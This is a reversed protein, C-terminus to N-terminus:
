GLNLPGGSAEVLLEEYLDVSRDPSFATLTRERLQTGRHKAELPHTLWWTLRAELAQADGAPFVLDGNPEGIIQPMIGASSPITLTGCAMGEILALGFPEEWQSPVAIVDAVSQYYEPRDTTGPWLVQDSTLGLRRMLEEVRQRYEAEVSGVLVLKANPVSKLTQSYAQVLTEIGKEVTIRGVYVVLPSQEDLHLTRRRAVRQDCPAFRTTDVWNPAVHLDREPWGLHRWADATPESPAVGAAMWKMARRVSWPCNTLPLGLHYVTQIGYFRRALALTRLYGLHSTVIAKIGHSRCYHGIRRVCALSGPLSRWGFPQLRSRWSQTVYSRYTPLMNAETEYALVMEHGRRALSKTLSLSFSECGGGFRPVSELVLFKM